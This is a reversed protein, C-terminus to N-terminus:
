NKGGLLDDLHEELIVYLPELHEPMYTCLLLNNVVTSMNSLAVDESGEHKDRIEKLIDRIREWEDQHKM